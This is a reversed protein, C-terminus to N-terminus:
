FGRGMAGGEGGSGAGEEAGDSSDTLARLWYCRLM